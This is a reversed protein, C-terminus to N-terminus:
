VAVHPVYPKLQGSRVMLELGDAIKSEEKDFSNFIRRLKNRRRETEYGIYVALGAFIVLTLIPVEENM